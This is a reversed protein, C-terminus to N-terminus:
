TIILKATLLSVSIVRWSISLFYSISNAIRLIPLM